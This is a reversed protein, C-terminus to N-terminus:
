GGCGGCGGGCGGGGCGGGGDGGSSGCSVAGCSSSSGGQGAAVAKPYLTRAHPFVMLPIAAAGFVAALLAVDNSTFTASSRSRLGSFLFRLDSLMAKGRLTLRPRALRFAVFGFMIALLILFGLNTHGRSIAVVIKVLAVGWLVLLALGLIRWRNVRVEQNPLLGLNELSHEYEESSFTFQLESFVSSAEKLGKFHLLLERELPNRVSDAVHSSSVSISSGTVKLLGRNILSITAVRLLENKGGRLCAILYPDSLDAKITGSPETFRRWVVLAALVIAGLVCYFFLFEPGRLDFPSM